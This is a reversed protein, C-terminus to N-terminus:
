ACDIDGSAGHLIDDFVALLRIVICPCFCTMHGMVRVFIKKQIFGDKRHCARKAM